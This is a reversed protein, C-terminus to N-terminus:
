PIHDCGTNCCDHSHQLNPQLYVMLGFLVYIIQADINTFLCIDENNHIYLTTRPDYLIMSLCLTGNSSLGLPCANSCFGNCKAIKFAHTVWYTVLTIAWIAYDSSHDCNYAEVPKSFYFAPHM